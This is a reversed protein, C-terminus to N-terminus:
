EAEAAIALSANSSVKVTVEADIAGDDPVDTSLSKVYGTFEFTSSDSFTLTFIEATAGAILETLIAACNTMSYRLGITVEGGDVKGPAFSQVVDTLISIDVDNGSMGPGSISVANAFHTLTAGAFTTSLSALGAM